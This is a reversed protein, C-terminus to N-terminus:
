WEYTSCDRRMSYGKQATLETARESVEVVATAKVRGSRSLSAQVRVLDGAMSYTRTTARM